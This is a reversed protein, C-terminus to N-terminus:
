KLLVKFAVPLSPLNGESRRFLGTSPANLFLDCTSFQYGSVLVSGFLASVSM